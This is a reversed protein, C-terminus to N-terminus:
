SLMRLQERACLIAAIEKLFEELLVVAELFGKSSVDVELLGAKSGDLGGKETEDSLTGMRSRTKELMEVGNCIRKVRVQAETWLNMLVSVMTRGSDDHGM